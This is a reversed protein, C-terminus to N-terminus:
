KNENKGEDLTNSIPEDAEELPEEGYEDDPDDESESTAEEESEELYRGQVAEYDDFDDNYGFIENEGAVYAVDIM